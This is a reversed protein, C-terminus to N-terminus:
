EPWGYVRIESISTDDAKHSGNRAPYTSKITMRFGDCAGSGVRVKQYTKRDKFRGTVATGDGFSFNAAKLRGNSWWRDWGDESKKYGPLVEVYAVRVPQDFSFEVWEGVGYGRVNEAWCFEETGDFLNEAPYDPHHKSVDNVSLLWTVDEPATEGAAAGAPDPALAEGEAPSTAEQSVTANGTSASGAGGSVATVVLGALFLAGIGAVLYYPMAGGRSPPSAVQPLSATAGNPYALPPPSAPQVGANLGGRLVGRFAEADAFRGAPEKALAISLVQAFHPPLGALASAPIGAPQEHVIRYMVTTPADGSTAGFPNHGTLMEYALVGLAFVDAAATVTGGTVQEPAMYGPTGMVTGAQTLTATTGVHAIGFDALKVRGATTVFVNDPKIDRHVVGRSHAFAVADLLQDMISLTAASTLAGRDLITALTEGEILEMVIAPRCDYIDAQYVTVIGPHNLAAAVKGERVFREGLEAAVAEPTRHPIVPEKIAVERELTPDFGRWVVAMAGRGIEGRIEFPGIRQATM